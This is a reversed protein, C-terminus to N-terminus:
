GLAPFVSKGAWAPTIRFRFQRRLVSFAKGRGHPPSGQTASLPDLSGVKEGGMRPHDRVTTWSASAGTRKGAWAPTIGGRSLGHRYVIDKGRGHPPSGMLLLDAITEVIKEGGTCPHDWRRNSCRCDSCSKGAQAPTFGHRLDGSRDTGGKGRRHPPSGEEHEARTIPQDKEGGM